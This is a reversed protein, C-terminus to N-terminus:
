GNYVLPVYHVWPKLHASFHYKMPSDPILIVAGSHALLYALRGTSGHRYGMSLIYKYKGPSYDRRGRHLLPEIFSKGGPITGNRIYPARNNGKSKADYSDSTESRPNWSKVHTLETDLHISGSGESATAQTSSASISVDFLDPRLVAQDMVVHRVRRYSGFFAVKEVRQDWPAQGCCGDLVGDRSDRSSGSLKSLLTHYLESESAFMEYFPWSIDGHGVQGALSLVPFPLDYPISSREGGIGFVSDPLDSVISVAAQLLLLHFNVGKGIYVPLMQTEAIPVLSSSARQSRNHKMKKPTTKGVAHGSDSGGATSSDPHSAVIDRAFSYYSLRERGWPWDYYISNNVVRVLSGVQEFGYRGFDKPYKGRKYANRNTRVKFWDENEHNESWACLIELMEKDIGSINLLFLVGSTFHNEDRDVCQLMRNLTSHSYKQNGTYWSSVERIPKDKADLRPLYDAYRGRSVPVQHGNQNVTRVAAKEIKEPFRHGTVYYVQLLILLLWGSHTLLM